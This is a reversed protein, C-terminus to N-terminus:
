YGEVIICEKQTQRRKSQRFKWRRRRTHPEKCGDFVKSKEMEKDELTDQFDRMVFTSSFIPEESYPKLTQHRLM